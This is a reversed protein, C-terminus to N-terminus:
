RESADAQGRGFSWSPDNDPDLHSRADGGVTSLSPGEKSRGGFSWRPDDDPNIDRGVSSEAALFEVEDDSIVEAGLDGTEADSSDDNNEQNHYTLPVDGGGTLM